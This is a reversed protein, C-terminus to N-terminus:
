RSCYYVILKTRGAVFTQRFLLFLSREEEIKTFLVGLNKLFFARQYLRYISPMRRCIPIIFFSFVHFYIENSTFLKETSTISNWIPLVHTFIFSFSFSSYNENGYLIHPLFIVIKQHQLSFNWLVHLSYTWIAFLVAPLWRCIQGKGIQYLHLKSLHFRKKRSFFVSKRWWKKLNKWREFNETKRDFLGWLSAQFCM